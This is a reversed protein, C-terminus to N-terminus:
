QFLSRTNHEIFDFIIPISVTKFMTGEIREDLRAAMTNIKIYQEQMSSRAIQHVTRQPGLSMFQQVYVEAM